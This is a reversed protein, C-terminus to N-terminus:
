GHGVAWIGAGGLQAIGTLQDCDWGASDPLPVATWVAGNEGDPQGDRGAHRGYPGTLV